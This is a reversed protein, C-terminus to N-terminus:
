AAAAKRQAQRALVKAWVKEKKKEAKEAAKRAAATLKAGEVAEALQQAAHKAEEATVIGAANGGLDVRAAGAKVAGLYGVNHCYSGLAAAIVDKAIGHALLDARIDLKLPKREGYRVFAAPFKEIMLDIAARARRARSSSQSMPITRPEHPLASRPRRRAQILRKNRKATERREARSTPEFGLPCDGMEASWGCSAEM